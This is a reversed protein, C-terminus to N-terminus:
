TGRRRLTVGAVRDESARHVLVFPADSATPMFAISGLATDDDVCAPRLEPMGYRAALQDWRLAEPSRLEIAVGLARGSSTEVRAESWRPERPTIIMMWDGVRERVDGLSSALSEADTAEKLRSALEVIEGVRM